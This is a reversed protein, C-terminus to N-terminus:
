NRILKKRCIFCTRQDMDIQLMNCNKCIIAPPELDKLLITKYELPKTISHGKNQLLTLLKELKKNNLNEFAEFFDQELFTNVKDYSITIFQEEKNYNPVQIVFSSLIPYNNIADFLELRPDISIQKMNTKM